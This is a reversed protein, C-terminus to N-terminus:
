DDNNKDNSDGPKIEPNQNDFQEFGLNLQVGAAHKFVLDGGYYGTRALSLVGALFLVLGIGRLIVRYKRFFEIATRFIAAILTIWMTIVAANKHDELADKLMGSESLGGGAHDGSFYAAILGISGLILLYFGGKSLLEKKFLFGSLEAIFGTILLAIPFHVIMPHLHSIDFM